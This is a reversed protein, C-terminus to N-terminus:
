SSCGIERLYGCLWQIAPDNIAARNWVVSYAVKGYEFPLPKVKLGKAQCAVDAWQKSCTFLMESQRCMVAAAGFDPVIMKVDRLGHQQRLTQEFYPRSLESEAIGIHQSNLYHDITLEVEALPHDPSMLCVLEDELVVEWVLEKTNTPPQSVDHPLVIFDVQGSHLAGFGFKAKTMINLKAKPTLETTLKALPKAFLELTSERMSLSFRGEFVQPEFRAQNLLGNMSALMSHVLPAIEVAYLTPTLSTGDRFFLEDDLIDRLQTITKSVSSPTVSLQEATKTVNCTDLMVHLALLHKFGVRNLGEIDM